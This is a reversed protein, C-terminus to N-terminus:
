YFLTVTRLNKFPFCFVISNSNSFLHFCIQFYYLAAMSSYHSHLHCCNSYVLVLCHCFRTYFYNTYKCFLGIIFHTWSSYLDMKFLIFVPILSFCSHASLHLSSFLLYVRFPFQSYGSCKQWISFLASLAFSPCLLSFRHYNGFFVQILQGNQLMLRWFSQIFLQVFLFDM